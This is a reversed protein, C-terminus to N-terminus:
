TGSMEKSEEPDYASILRLYAQSSAVLDEHPGRAAISGHHLFVVEDALAITARRYAIVIVTFPLEAEKLGRLIDQEVTPDVSSTADDLVLVRPKKVLARALAVRQRQGGSLTTGREGVITDYGQPLASIFRHARALRAAREVAEDSFDEGLTINGRVTDDFLFSEQFVLAASDPVVGQKLDRLDEGDLRVAGAHPDALRLLLTAITSKGSGTSGVVAITRGPTVDVEVGDLVAVDEYAYKVGDLSVQASPGADSLDKTGYGLVDAADLVRKVREWGVVSRPMDGLIWGIARVPFSLQTFLYSFQVLEGTTLHGSSIRWAGALLIALVTVNPLAELLPDFIARVTGLRILGDRLEESKARFRATEESELGLTKVVLAGDFSEHAVGSVEARTQQARTAIAEAKQSYFHSLLVIVPIMLGGIATLVVDTAVLLALTILVMFVVGCSLPLPAIVWFTGEVDSNANNLLEGTPHRRHWEMSLRQYQETVGKRFHAQLRYQMAFAGARRCVVGTAKLLAVGLIAAAAGVLAGATTAGRAFAPVVVADTVRGLVVAEGVTMAAYLAAGLVGVLFPKPQLGISM